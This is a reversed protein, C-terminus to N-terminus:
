QTVQIAAPSGLGFRMFGDGGRFVPRSRQWSALVVHAGYATSPRSRRRRNPVPMPLPQSESGPGTSGSPPTQPAPQSPQTQPLVVPAAGNYPDPGYAPLPPLKTTKAFPEYDPDLLRQLDAATVARHAKTDQEPYVLVHALRDVPSAKPMAALSARYYDAARENDGRAQEYRAALTLIAPDTPFRDLAQRLWIEAQNKDNAALAAGIAGEFDGASADQMPVTKFLALAEKARGVRAYGGAVAKRVTLNNPFAQSAADLIDVARQVNGNDMAVAARRVSWNAWINQVTERQAVTLDTRGGIRMLAPYLARDNGINYLLWANQIDINAPPLQKLKAYYAQVRNMYQVAHATDGTAAYLSAETQVFDIDADLQKRVPPPFTPSRRRAGRTNRNTATLTAILGKWADARDPHDTLVQRYIAYAQATNNRLLYIAALQLQLAVSPQGGAAIQLKESRELLGQAVEFQNAQQYIAGLM